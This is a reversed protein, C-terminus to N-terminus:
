PYRWRFEISVPKGIYKRGIYVSAQGTKMVKVIVTKFVSGPIIPKEADARGMYRLIRQRVKGDMRFNEVEYKYEHGKIKKTRIFSM